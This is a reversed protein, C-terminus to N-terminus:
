TLRIPSYTLLQSCRFKLWMLFRQSTKNLWSWLQFIGVGTRLLLRETKTRTPFNQAMELYFLTNRSSINAFHFFFRMAGHLYRVPLDKFKEARTDVLSADYKVLKGDVVERYFFAMMKNLERNRISLPKSLYTDIDVFEGFSLNPLDIFRYEVGNFEFDKHFTSDMSMIYGSVKDAVPKVSSYPLDRLEERSIGSMLHILTYVFDDEEELDKYVMMEQWIQLTPEELVVENGGYKLTHIEM